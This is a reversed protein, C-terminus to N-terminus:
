RRNFEVAVVPHMARIASRAVREIVAPKFQHLTVSDEDQAIVRRVTERGDTFEVVVDARARVLASTDVYLTHSREICPSMSDNLLEVAYVSAKQQGYPDRNSALRRVERLIDSMHTM